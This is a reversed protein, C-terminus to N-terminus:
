SLDGKNSFCDRRYPDFRYPTSQEVRTAYLPGLVDAQETVGPHSTNYKPGLPPFRVRMVKRDTSKSDVSDVM